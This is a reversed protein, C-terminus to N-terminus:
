TFEDQDPDYGILNPPIGLHSLLQIMTIKHGQEHTMILLDQVATQCGDKWKSISEKLKTLDHKKQYVQAVKLSQVKNEKAAVRRELDELTKQDYTIELDTDISESSATETIGTRSSSTDLNTNVTENGASVLLQAQTGRRRMRREKSSVIIKQSGEGRKPTETSDENKKPTEVSIFSSPTLCKAKSLLEDSGENKNPTSRDSVFSCSPSITPSKRKLGVRRCPTLLSKNIGHIQSQPTAPNGLHENVFAM